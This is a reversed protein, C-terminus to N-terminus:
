RIKPTTLTLQADADSTASAYQVNAIWAVSGANHCLPIVLHGNCSRAKMTRTEISMHLSQCNNRATLEGSTEQCVCVFCM